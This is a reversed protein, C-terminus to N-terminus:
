SLKDIKKVLVEPLLKDIKKVLWKLYIHYYAKKYFYSLDVIKWFLDFITMTVLISFADSILENNKYWDGPYINLALPVLTADISKVLMLKISM